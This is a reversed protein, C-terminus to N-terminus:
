MCIAVLIREYVGVARTLRRPNEDDRLSILPSFILPSPCTTTAYCSSRASLTFRCNSARIPCLTLKDTELGHELHPIPISGSPLHISYRTTTFLLSRYVKPIYVFPLLYTLHHSRPAGGSPYSVSFSFCFYLFSLFTFIWASPLHSSIPYSSHISPDLLFSGAAAM